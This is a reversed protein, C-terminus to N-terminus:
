TGQNSFYSAGLDLQFTHLADVTFTCSHSRKLYSFSHGISNLLSGLSSSLNRAVIQLEYFTLFNIYFLFIM